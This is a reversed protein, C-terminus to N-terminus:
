GLLSPLKPCFKVMADTRLNTKGDVVKRSMVRHNVPRDNLFLFSGTKRTLLQHSFLDFPKRARIKNSYSFLDFLAKITIRLYFTSIELKYQPEVARLKM